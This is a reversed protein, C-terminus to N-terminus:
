KIEGKSINTKNNYSFGKVRCLLYDTSFDFACRILLYNYIIQAGRM